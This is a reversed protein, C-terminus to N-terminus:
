SLFLVIKTSVATMEYSHRKKPVDPCSCYLSRLSLMFREKKTEKQTHCSCYLRQPSLQISENPTEYRQPDIEQVACACPIQFACSLTSMSIVFSDIKTVRQLLARVRSKFLKRLYYKQVLSIGREDFLKLPVRVHLYLVRLFIM